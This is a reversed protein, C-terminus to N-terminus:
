IWNSKIPTLTYGVHRWVVGCHSRLRSENELVVSTRKGTKRREISEVKYM